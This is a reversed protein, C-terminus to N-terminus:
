GAAPVPQIRRTADAAIPAPSQENGTESANLITHLALEEDIVLEPPEDRDPEGRDGVRLEVVQGQRAVRDIDGVALKLHHIPSRQSTRGDPLQLRPHVDVIM